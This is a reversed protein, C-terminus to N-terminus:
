DTIQKSKNKNKKLNWMCAIDNIKGKETQTIESLVNSELDMWTAAFPLIEKKTMASYYDMICHFIAAIFISTCIGSQSKTKIEKPYIIRLPISPDYPLETKLKQLFKRSNDMTAVSIQM